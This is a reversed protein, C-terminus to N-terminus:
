EPKNKKDKTSNKIETNLIISKKCHPCIITTQDDDDKVLESVSIGLVKSIKQLSEFSPNKGNIITSLSAQAMGLEEALKVVTWGNEHIRNKINM